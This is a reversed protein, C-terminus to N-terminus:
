SLIQKIEKQTVEGQRIIQPRGEDTLDVITTPLVGAPCDAAYLMDPQFRRTNYNERIEDTSYLDNKGSINASTATLPFSIHEFLNVIEEKGSVRLAITNEREVGFVKKRSSLVITLPGPYFRKFVKRAEKTIDVFEEAMEIDKVLMSLTKTKPRNKIQFVKEVAEENTADAFLGFSTKTPFAVIGGQRLVRAVEEITSAEKM